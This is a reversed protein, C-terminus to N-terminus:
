RRLGRYRALGATACFDRWVQLLTHRDLVDRLTNLDVAEERLFQAIRLRDKPRGVKAAMAVLHEPKLVRTRVPSRRADLQIDVDLARDLAEVELDSAVPVFQVPWGEIMLGERNFETYGRRALSALIPGLAM